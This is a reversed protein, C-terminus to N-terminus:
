YAQMLSESFCSKLKVSTNIKLYLIEFVILSYFEHFVFSRVSFPKTVRFYM